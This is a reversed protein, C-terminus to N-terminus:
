STPRFLPDVFYNTSGFSSTPFGGDSGYRFVGNAGAPGLLHQTRREVAFYGSTAAFRGTPSLYSVVYRRGAEVPVPTAFKAEEWGAAGGGALTVTALRVGAEDWLSAVHPATDGAARSIRVGELTGAALPVFGTGVEIPDTDTGQVAPEEGALLSTIPATVAATTFSWQTPASAIGDASAVGSVSVTHVASPALPADPRFVIASGSPALSATGPVEVGDRRVTMSWGTAALPGSYDARIVTDAAVAAADPVPTRGTLDVRVPDAEFVVDAFYNTSAHTQTPFGGEAGYLFRGNGGAAARLDGKAWGDVFARPTYAYHGQPAFYSVVYARGPELAVPTDLHATRWEGASTGPSTDFRVRALLEGSATWLSGRHAGGNGQGAFLRIATVSGARTASFEVGVEVPLSEALSPVAPQVDGFMSQEAIVDESRTTFSWRVPGLASGTQSVLGTVEVDVRVGAPLPAAPTFNVRAGGDAMATTGAVPVGGVTVRVAAARSSASSLDLAIPRNRRVDLAGSAPAMRTVSLAVPAREFVVDVMYNATSDSTPFGQGYRFVGARAAVRLPSRSLSGDAFAGPTLSYGGRPATYSAVYDRGAQVSVPSSLQLTQWGATSEGSFTGRALETGDAAWLTGVHEGTNRPGKHFRLATITGDVEPTFKVGLTVSETDAASDNAPQTADDFLTCPCVGPAAAPKASTFSWQRGTSVVQGLADVASVTAMHSTNAALPAAPTFTITRSAADYANTGRIITGGAAIVALAPTSGARVPKSLVAKVTTTLAVSTSGALPKQETVVLPSDDVTNFVVDVFYHSSRHSDAPFQGPRGFVGAAQAGFGGAVKLPPALRPGEYFADAEFAYRGQPATYSAVYTQGTKVAVPSTFKLTQWGTASEGTFEGTALREGTASWLSGTHTGGNGAGKFFRVGTIFGDARPEFRLGLETPSTDDSAGIDPTESGFVSCPCSVRVSRSVTRGLNASDDSARAMITVAGMGKQVYSHSWSTTGKAARWTTGGDVSVEVGAVRGGIDYATGSVTRTTGNAIAANAAPASITVSPAYYDYSRTARVLPRALSAPQVGMDAFLNVQAQRMRADAPEPPYPSDHTGDLGWTWQVSGASFVLAGSPAKYMTLNHTTEGPTVTNGYDRLYEPTPGTTTSLRVLGAPRRGNDVDENSEYGITHPALTATGSSMNALSTNRWLRYKGEAASVKLALDTYNSMYMTGTLENEPSNGGQVSPAFRPDRWTATSEAAPDSKKRDWTEKYTVLTRHPTRSSDVSPEWRTRWYMENGSLFQLHVGADRAATVNARQAGSWYEDHGVSLFVKHNKLLAGRRDTDVGSMYSVDYGNQEMFRVMPYENSFFFDRGGIGSRTAMPRNYSLKMARGLAGGWYFNSGGYTNYAQWTTDSTQFVVDSRSADDRVVFTIHSSRGEDRVLHAIYVGSVADAPVAWSASVAWNGCDYLETTPDSICQPQTQPLAASPTVSAIKRAGNGQYYGIRYINIDYASADTDIKFDIRQGVNVSIDTSFGQISSDGAGRVDWVSPPTGPKSNECVVANGGTTCPAAHAPASPLAALGAMALLGAVFAGVTARPRRRPSTM